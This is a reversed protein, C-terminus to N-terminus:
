KFWLLNIVWGTLTAVASAGATFWKWKKQEDEFRDQRGEMIAMRKVMGGDNVLENGILASKITRVDEVLQSLNQDPTM